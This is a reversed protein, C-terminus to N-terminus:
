FVLFNVSSPRNCVHSHLKRKLGLTETSDHPRSQWRRDIRTRRVHSTPVEKPAPWRVKGNRWEPVPNGAQKHRRLADCVARTLAEEVVKDDQVRDVASLTREPNSVFGGHSKALIVKTVREAREGCM